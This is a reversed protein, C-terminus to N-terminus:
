EEEEPTIFSLVDEIAEGNFIDILWLNEGDYGVLIPDENRITRDSKESVVWQAEDIIFMDIFLHRYKNYKVKTKDPIKSNFISTESSDKRVVNQLEHIKQGLDTWKKSGDVATHGLFFKGDSQSLCHSSDPNYMAFVPSNNKNREKLVSRDLKPFSSRIELINRIRKLNELEESVKKYFTEECKWLSDLLKQGKDIQKNLNILQKSETKSLPKASKATSILKDLNTKINNRKKTEQLIDDLISNAHIVVTEVNNILEHKM